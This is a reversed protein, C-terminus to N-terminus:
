LLQLTNLTTTLLEDCSMSEIIRSSVVVVLPSVKVTALFELLGDKGEAKLPTFPLAGLDRVANWFHMDASPAVVLLESRDM